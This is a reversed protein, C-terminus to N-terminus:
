RGSRAGVGAGRRAPIGGARLVACTSGSASATRRTTALTACSMSAFRQRAQGQVRVLDRRYVDSNPPSGLCVLSARIILVTANAVVNSGLARTTSSGFILSSVWSCVPFGFSKVSAVAFHSELLDRGHKRAFTYRQGTREEPVVVHEARTL